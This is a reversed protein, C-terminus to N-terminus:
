FSQFSDAVRQHVRTTDRSMKLSECASTELNRQRM